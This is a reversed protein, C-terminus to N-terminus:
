DAAAFYWLASSLAYACHLVCCGARSGSDLTGGILVERWGTDTNRYCYDGTGVSDGSGRTAPYFVGNPSTVDGIWFGTSGGVEASMTAVNTYTSQITATNSSHTVGAPAQWFDTSYDANINMATDGVADWAGIQVEIGMIRFPHKSDTNSGLSGDHKGIVADTSGSWWPMTSLLAPSMVDTYTANSVDTDLTNFAATEDIDLYVAVYDTGDLTITEKSLVKASAVKSRVTAQGRDNNLAGTSTNLSAYGITVASGIVINAAQAATLPFYTHAESDKYAANYQYNYSTCGKFVTQSSKTAYKLLINDYVFQFKEYTQGWYGAGKTQYQTILTNHSQFLLPAIDPQSYLGHYASFVGYGKDNGDKDKCVNMLELGLEPHPSDSITLLSYEANTDDWKRYRSMFLSGVDATGSTKYKNDGEIATVLAVGSVDREYNCHWWQFVPIDLYDDRGEVTDTSPEAVLGENDLTKVCVTTQNASFKPIKVQYVKGTRKLAFYASLNTTLMALADIEAFARLIDAENATLRENQETQEEQIDSIENEIGELLNVVNYIKGDEGIVRGSSPSMKELPYVEDGVPTGGGLLDVLNKVTGDEAIIRGSKPSMKTLDAM